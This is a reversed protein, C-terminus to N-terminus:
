HFPNKSVEPKLVMQEKMYMYILELIISIQVKNPGTSVAVYAFYM